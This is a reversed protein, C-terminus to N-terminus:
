LSGIRAKTVDVVQQDRYNGDNDYMPRDILVKWYGKDMQAPDYGTINGNEDYVAGAFNGTVEFTGDENHKVTGSFRPTIGFHQCYDVFRKGNEDAQDKTLGKDWYEYPFIQKAQDKGLKM